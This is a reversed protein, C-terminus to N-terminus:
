LILCSKYFNFIDTNDITNRFLNNINDIKNFPNFKIFYPVNTKSHGTRTYLSNDIKSVDDSYKLGGTEHDATVVIATGKQNEIKESVIKISEDFSNLYEMMEFIQNNHSKKDIHAGEIMLFYGNSFNEEFYNIAFQTLMELTPNENTGIKSVVSDFTAIIKSDNINLDQYSNTYVYGKNIFDEKYGEYTSKGAGLFLDINSNLQGKIIDDSDSRDNAHSSFASPTAGNLSDTTVIGVGFGKSKAYESITTIDKGNHRSIERNDFKKGTALASASAASDTPSLVSNSYTTVYGKIDFSEMYMDKDYYKSTVKIHNEGMGDGIFMVIKNANGEVSSFDIRDRNKRDIKVGIYIGFFTVIVILIILSIIITIRLKKNKIM